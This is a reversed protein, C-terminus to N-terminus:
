VLRESKDLVFFNIALFGAVGALIPNNSIWLMIGDTSSATAPPVYGWPLGTAPNLEAKDQPDKILKNMVAIIISAAAPAVVAWPFAGVANGIRKLKYGTRIASELRSFDGGFKIVWIDRMKKKDEENDLLKYLKTAFGFMNTSVMMLYANRQVLFNVVKAAHGIWDFVNGIMPVEAGTTVNNFAQITAYYDADNVINDIREPYLNGEGDLVGTQMLQLIDNQYGININSLDEQVIQNLPFMEKITNIEMQVVDIPQNRAAIDVADNLNDIGAINRKLAMPKIKEDIIWVPQLETAGPTPDIDIGECVVFVHHPTKDTLKYSVFRYNWKFKTGYCRNIADIIGGCFSAYHKCDGHGRNLIGAPLATTQSDETEEKYKINKKCFEYLRKCLVKPNDTYFFDCIEDYYPSFEQHAELIEGIIDHVDQDPTIVIWEDRYPPLRRLLDYRTFEM